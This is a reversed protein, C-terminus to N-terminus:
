VDVRQKLKMKKIMTSVPQVSRGMMGWWFDNEPRGGAPVVTLVEPEYESYYEPVLRKMITQFKTYRYDALCCYYEKLNLTKAHEYLMTMTEKLGTKSLPVDQAKLNSLVWSDEFVLRMGVMSMLKGQHFSGFMKHTKGLLYSGSIHEHWKALMREQFRESTYGSPLDMRKKIRDFEVVTAFRERLLEIVQEYDDLKLQRTEDIFAEERAPLAVPVISLKPEHYEELRAGKPGEIEGRLMSTLDNYETLFTSGSDPFMRRLEVRLENVSNILEYGHYKKRPALEPFYKQYIGFKSTMTSRKGYLRDNVLDDIREDQLFSLMIEPTYQFFGPVAKREKGPLMFHRYWAAILEKEYLDWPTAEYPSEGDIYAQPTRKVLYCEGSGIIPTGNVQDALWMTSCLMPDRCQTAEAYTVCDNELFKNIDLQIINYRVNLQNCAVVAFSIDHLNYNDNFQCIAATIPIGLRKFSRIVLESDSGGSFLVTLPGDTTDRILKATELCENYFDEAPRNVAGYKVMWKNEANERFRFWDNDYGFKFHNQHTLEHM